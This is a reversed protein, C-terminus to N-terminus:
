FFGRPVGSTSHSNLHGQQSNPQLGLSLLRQEERQLHELKDKQLRYMRQATLVSESYYNGAGTITGQMARELIKMPGHIPTPVHTVAPKFEQHVVPSKRMTVRLIKGNDAKKGHLNDVAATGAAKRAYTVQSFGQSCVCSLIEGFRSCVYKVDEATTGPDLNEIEITVPGSEGRFAVSTNPASGKISIMGGQPDTDMDMDMDMSSSEMERSAAQPRSDQRQSQETARASNGRRQNNINVNNSHNNNNNNNNTSSTNNISDRRNSQSQANNGSGQRSDAFADSARKDGSRNGPVTRGSARNNTTPNSNPRYSDGGRNGRPPSPGRNRVNASSREERMMAAPATPIRDDRAMTASTQGSERTIRQTTVLRLSQTKLSTSAEKSQQQKNAGHGAKNNTTFLKLTTKPKPIYGATFIEKVPAKAAKYSATFLATEKKAVDPRAYPSKLNGTKAAREARIATRSKIGGSTKKPINAAKTSIATPRKALGKLKKKEDRQKKIIDDLSQDIGNM